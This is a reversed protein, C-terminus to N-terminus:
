KGASQAPLVTVQYDAGTLAGKPGVGQVSFHDEGTYGPASTYFVGTGHTKKSNCTHRSNSTPFSPYDDVAAFSVSGHVPAAKINLQVQGPSTCDPDVSYFFGVRQTAGSIAGRQQLNVTQAPQSPPQPRLASPPIVAAVCGGLAVALAAGAGNLIWHKM